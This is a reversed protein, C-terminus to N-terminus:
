HAVFLIHHSALVLAMNHYETLYMLLTPGNIFVIIVVNVLYNVSTQHYEVCWDMLQDNSCRGVSGVVWRDIGYRKTFCRPSVSGTESARQPWLLGPPDMM